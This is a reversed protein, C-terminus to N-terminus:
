LEFSANPKHSIAFTAGEGIVDGATLQVAAVKTLLARQESTLPDSVADVSVGMQLPLTWGTIDYPLHAGAATAGTAAAPYVQRELLEKAMASFPQNMPIVWSGAPYDIGNAKFGPKSEYVDLGNDIMKQALLGAEPVDGQRDSIVYAFPPETRHIDDRAAQCRNYLLTERNKAALDLVSM